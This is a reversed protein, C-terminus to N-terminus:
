DNYVVLDDARDGAARDGTGSAAAVDQSMVELGTFFQPAEVRDIIRIVFLLLLAPAVNRRFVAPTTRGPRRAGVIRFRAGRNPADAHRSRVGLQDATRTIAVHEVGVGREGEVDIGALQLPVVLVHGAVVPVQVARELAHDDLLV